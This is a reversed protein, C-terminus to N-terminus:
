RSICIPGLGARISEPTTLVRGCRGCKGNHYVGFGLNEVKDLSNEWINHCIRNFLVVPVSDDRMKSAKTLKLRGNFPLLMGLYQYDSINDPGSLLSVFWSEPFQASAEKQTIKFTYHPKSLWSNQFQQPIDVTFVSQGALVFDKTIM